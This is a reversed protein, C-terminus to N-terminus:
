KKLMNPLNELYPHTGFHLDSINRLKKKSPRKNTIKKIPSM